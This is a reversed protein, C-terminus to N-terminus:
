VGGTIEVFLVGFAMWAITVVIPSLILLALCARRQKQETAKRRACFVATNVALCVPMVPSTMAIVFLLTGLEYGLDRYNHFFDDRTLFMLLIAAAMLVIYAAQIITTVTFTKKM